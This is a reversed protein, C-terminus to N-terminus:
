APKGIRSFKNTTPQDPLSAIKGRSSPSLGFEALSVNLRRQADGRMLMKPNARRMVAGAETRCEYTSGETRLEETLQQWEAFNECLVSLAPEDAATLIRRKDLLPVLRGWAARAADGLWVPCSGVPQNRMAGSAALAAKHRGKRVTGQVQHIAIPV